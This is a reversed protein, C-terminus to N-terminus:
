ASVIMSSVTFAYSFIIPCSTLHDVLRVFPQDFTQPTAYSYSRFPAVAFCPFQPKASEGM